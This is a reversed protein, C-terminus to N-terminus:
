TERSRSGSGQESIGNNIVNYIFNYLSIFFTVALASSGGKINVKFDCSRERSTPPLVFEGGLSSFFQYSIIAVEM